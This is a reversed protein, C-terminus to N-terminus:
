TVLRVLSDNMAHDWRKLESWRTRAQNGVSHVLCSQSAKAQKYCSTWRGFNRESPSLGPIIILQNIPTFLLMQSITKGLVSRIQYAQPHLWWNVPLLSCLFLGSSVMVVVRWPHVTPFQVQCINKVM